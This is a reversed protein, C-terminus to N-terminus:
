AAAAYRLRLRGTRKGSNMHSVLLDYLINAAAGGTAALQKVHPDQIPFKALKRRLDATVYFIRDTEDWFDLHVSFMRALQILFTTKLQPASHRYEISNIGWCEDIVSFFTSVNRRFNALTVAKASREIVAAIDETRGGSIATKHAHLRMAAKCLARASLLAGREMNQAWSVKHLLPFDKTSHSLGYLTLVADNSDRMNRLHLNASVKRINKNLETFRHREWLDGTGFHISAFMRVNHTPAHELLQLATGVRQWGDIIYAPSRIIVDQGDCDFDQGRVGIEISPVVVGARLAEYIDPRSGLPRQYTQDVKLFRLTSPDIRGHLVVASPSTPDEDLSGNIIRVHPPVRTDLLRSVNDEDDTAIDASMMKLTM